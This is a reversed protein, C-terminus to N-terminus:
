KKYFNFVILFKEVGSFRGSNSEARVKVNAPGPIRTNTISVSTPSEKEENTGNHKVKVSGFSSKSDKDSVTFLAGTLGRTYIIVELEENAQMKITHSTSGRVHILHTVQRTMGSPAVRMLTTNTSEANGGYDSPLQDVDVLELLRKEGQSRSSILDVKGATRPDIWGKIIRWTLAFFRPVNVVIMKSMTEPFCLSDITSQTKIIELARGSLQATTLGDLDLVCVCAFNNFDPNKTKNERLRGAYDHMMVHWHYNLIGELTTICEMGDVNLVGPKSIFLPCGNKANGTYLQPYQSSYVFPDVGLATSPDPYFDFKRPESMCETAGEVMKIVDQYVFKRARLWRCLCYAEEENDGFSFCTKRFDGGRKNLEDRFKIFVDVEEQSLEGPFGWEHPKAVGEKQRRLSTPSKYKNQLGSLNKQTTLQTTATGDGALDAQPGSGNEMMTM